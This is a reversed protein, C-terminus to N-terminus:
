TWSSVSVAFRRFLRTKEEGSLGRGTDRVAFYLYIQEGAGWESDLTLDRKSDVGRSPFWELNVGEGNPPKTTSGGVSVKIYREAETRTFKIANTMLNILIQTVRSPDIMVWDVGANRYSAEFFFELDIGNALLEGEFMKLAGKVAVWPQTPAPSVALMSSDLKSLTLVDNIIRGQHQACLTIIQIAELNSEVLEDSLVATKSSGQFELLSSAIGDASQIIASLPNRMEHSTIDMFQEMSKRAEEAEVTSRIQMENAEEQSRALQESLMARDNADEEAQKLLSIDSTSGMISKLTGDENKEHSCSALIWVNKWTDSGKHHWKKALRLEFTRPIRLEALNHWESELYPKDEEMVLNMFSMESHENKPHGTMEYWTENAYLVEGTTSIYFLGATNLETLAKFRSQGEALNKSLEAQKLKAQEILVAATLSTSLQRSLLKIFGDFDEDYARRPNLGLFLLGLVVEGAALPLIVVAKSVEGFSLLLCTLKMRM